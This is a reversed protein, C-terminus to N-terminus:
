YNTEQKGSDVQNDRTSVNMFAGRHIFSAPACFVGGFVTANADGESVVPVVLEIIQSVAEKNHSM